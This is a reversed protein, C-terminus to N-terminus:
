CGTSFRSLKAPPNLTPATLRSAHRPRMNQSRSQEPDGFRALFACLWRLLALFVGAVWQKPTGCGHLHRMLLSLNHALAAGYYAKTLNECGRLTARRRGGHDLVHCFGRELHEGRKRLLKKGSASQVARQARRLIAQDEAPLDQRRRGAKPDSIVARIEMAQLQGIERLAFYGEDACVEKGLKTLDEEGTVEGLTQIAEAVRESLAETDGADGPRVEARIIAGSELDSVHEPKYIMDTAGHKTRGVKAEPDHPNAWEENSTKRGSRQKDFRRVAKTDSPDIGAEEALQKVYDWYSQETNRHELARL